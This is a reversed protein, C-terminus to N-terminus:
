ANTAWGSVETSGGSVLMIAMSGVEGKKVGTFEYLQKGPAGVINETNDASIVEDKTTNMIGNESMSYSWTYGTSPNSEFEVEYTNKLDSKKGCGCIVIFVLCIFLCYLIKKM